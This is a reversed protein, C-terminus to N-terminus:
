FYLILIKINCLFLQMSKKQRDPNYNFKLRFIRKQQAKEGNTTTNVSNKTNITCKQKTSM